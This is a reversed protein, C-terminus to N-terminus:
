VYRQALGCAQKLLQAQQTEDGDLESLIRVLKANWNNGDRINIELAVREFLRPYFGASNWDILCLPRDELVLINQPAIDLHCFVLPYATLSLHSKNKLQRKNHYDEIDATTTPAILDYDLWSVLPM